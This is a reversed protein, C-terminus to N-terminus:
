NTRSKSKFVTDKSLTIIDSYSNFNISQKKRLDLDEITIPGSADHMSEIVDLYVVYM